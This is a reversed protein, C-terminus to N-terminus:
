DHNAGLRCILHMWISPLISEPKWCCHSNPQINVYLYLNGASFRSQWTTKYVMLKQALLLAYGVVSKSYVINTNQSYLFMSRARTRWGSGWGFAGWQVPPASPDERRPPSPTSGARAWVHNHFCVNMLDNTRKYTSAWHVCALCMCHVVFLNFLCIEWNVCTWLNWFRKKNLFFHRCCAGCCSWLKLM